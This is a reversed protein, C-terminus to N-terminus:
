KGWLAFRAGDPIVVSESSEAHEVIASSDQRTNTGTHSNAGPFRLTARLGPHNDGLKVKIDHLEAIAAVLSLGLGNGPTSRSRDLRYFRKLVNERESDPIGLGSDAIVGVADIGTRSLAVEIRAGIPTHRVANEILNSLMQVLLSHDGVFGINADIRSVLVQGRETVVGEYANAVHTFIESLCQQAFASRRTKAEIQAIRILASFTDLIGDVQVIAHDIAQEYVVAPQPAARAAELRQRLHSLPTRLDHAIDASVQKLSEMLVQIREFMQNLNSGLRDMEDNTGRVEIRRGLDGNIIERSTQNIADVRALYSLSLVAGGCCGLAFAPILAWLFASISAEETDAVQETDNGVLLFNGDPFVVGLALVDHPEAENKDTDQLAAGPANVPVAMHTWGNRPMARDLNGAIKRGSRDSLFYVREGGATASLSKVADILKAADGTSNTASLATVQAEISKAIGDRLSQSISWYLTLFLALVSCFFFLTYLATYRIATIRALRALM